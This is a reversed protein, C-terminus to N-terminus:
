RTPARRRWGPTAPRPNPQAHQTCRCCRRTIALRAASCQALRRSGQGSGGGRWQACECSARAPCRLTPQRGAAVLAAARPGRAAPARTRHAALTLAAAPTGLGLQASHATQMSCSHPVRMAYVRARTSPACRPTLVRPPPVVARTRSASATSWRATPTMPLRMALVHMSCFNQQGTHRRCPARRACAGAGAACDARALLSRAARRGARAQRGGACRARAHSRATRAAAGWCASGGARRGHQARACRAAACTASSAPPPSSPHTCPRAHPTPARHRSGRAHPPHLVGFRAVGREAPAAAAARQVHVHAAGRVLGRPLPAGRLRALLQHRRGGPFPPTPAPPPAHALLPALPRHRSASLRSALGLHHTAGGGDSARAAAM